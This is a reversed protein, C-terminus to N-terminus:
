GIVTVHFDIALLETSGGTLMKPSDSTAVVTYQVAGGLTVDSEVAAKVSTAGTPATMAMVAAQGSQDMNPSVCVRVLYSLKNLGGSTMSQNYDVGDPVVYICPPVPNGLIWQSVQWDPFAASLNAAIGAPIVSPDSIM